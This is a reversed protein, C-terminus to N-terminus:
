TRAEFSVALLHDSGVTLQIACGIPVQAFASPTQGVVIGENQNTVKVIEPNIEAFGGYYLVASATIWDLGILNPVLTDGAPLGGQGTQVFTSAIGTLTFFGTFPAFTYVSGQLVADIGTLTFLGTAATLTFAAGTSNILNANQGNLFFPGFSGQLIAPTQSQAGLLDFAGPNAFIVASGSVIQGLVFNAAQGSLTFLGAAGPITVGSYFGFLYNYWTGSSSATATFSQAGTVAGRYYENRLSGQGSVGTDTWGASQSGFNIPQGYLNVSFALENPQALTNSNSIATGTGTAQVVSAVDLIPASPFGTVRIIQFIANSYTGTNGWVITPPSGSSVNCAMFVINMCNTGSGPYFSAVSAYNGSNFTDTVPVNVLGTVNNPETIVLILDGINCNTTMAQSGSAGSFSGNLVEGISYGSASQEALIVQFSNVNGTSTLLNAKADFTGTTIVRISEVLRAAVTNYNSAYGSSASLTGATTISSMVVLAPQVPVNDTGIGGAVTVANTGPALATQQTGITALISGVNSIGACEYLYLVVSPTAGNFAVSITTAGTTNAIGYYASMYYAGPKIEENSNGLTGTMSTWSPCAGTLGTVFQSSSGTRFVVAVITNGTSNITLNGSSTTVSNATLVSAVM